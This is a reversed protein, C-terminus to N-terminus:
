KNLITNLLSRKFKNFIIKKFYIKKILKIFWNVYNGEWKNHIITILNKRWRQIYQKTGKIKINM